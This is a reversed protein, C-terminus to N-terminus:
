PPQAGLATLLSPLQNTQWDQFSRANLPQTESVGVIPIGNATALAKMQETQGTITQTNYVLVKIQHQTIQTQFTAVDQATPDNGESIANMFGPPSILNLGTGAALYM